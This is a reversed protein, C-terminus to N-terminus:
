YMGINQMNVTSSKKVDFTEHTLRTLGIHLRTYKVEYQKYRNYAGDWEEIHPKIHYLKRSSSEWERQWKSNRASRIVLYYDIYFLKRSIIELM